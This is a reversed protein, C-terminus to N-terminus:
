SPQAGQPPSPSRALLLALIALGAATGLLSLYQGPTWGLYRADGIRLADLAFRVPGYLAFFLVLPRVPAAEKLENPGYTELRAAAVERSLGARTSELRRLVSDEDLVHWAPPGPPLSAEAVSASRAEM